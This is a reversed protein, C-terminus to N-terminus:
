PESSSQIESAPIFAVWQKVYNSHAGVGADLLAADMQDSGDCESNVPSSCDSELFGSDITDLDLGMQPYGDDQHENSSFSDLSIEEIHDMDNDYGRENLGEREDLGLVDDEDSVGPARQNAGHFSPDPRNRGSGRDWDSMTGEQGSVTVTDMSIHGLSSGGLFYRKSSGPNVLSLLSWDGLGSGGSGPDHLLERQLPLAALQKESLVQLPVSKELIDFSNFTLVPGVWKQLLLFDENFVQM